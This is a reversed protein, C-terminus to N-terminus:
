TVLYKNHFSNLWDILWWINISDSQTGPGTRSGFTCFYVLEGVTSDKREHVEDKM